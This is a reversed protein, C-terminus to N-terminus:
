RCRRCRSPSCSAVDDGHRDLRQGDALQLVVLRPATTGAAAAPRRGRAPAEAAGAAAVPGAVGVSSGTPWVRLSTSPTNTMRSPLARTRAPRPRCRRRASSRPSTLSQLLAVPHDGPGEVRHPVEVLGVVHALAGAGARGRGIARRCRWACIRSDTLSASAEIQALLSRDSSVSSPLMTATDDIMATTASIWPTLPATDSAMTESRPASENVMRRVPMARLWSSISRWRLLGRMVSSSARAISRKPM